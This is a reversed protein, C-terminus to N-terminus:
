QLSKYQSLAQWASTADFYMCFYDRVFMCISKAAHLVYGSASQLEIIYVFGITEYM